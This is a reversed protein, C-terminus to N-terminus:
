NPFLSKLSSWLATKLERSDRIETLPDAWIGKIGNIDFPTYKKLRFQLGLQNPPIGFLLVTHSDTQRCLDILSFRTAPTSKLLLVDKTDDLEVSKLIKSLLDMDPDDEIKAIVAIKKENSGRAQEVM